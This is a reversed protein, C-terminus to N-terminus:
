PVDAGSRQRGGVLEPVCLSCKCPRPHQTSWAQPLVMEPGISAICGRDPGYRDAVAPGAMSPQVLKSRGLVSASSASGSWSRVRRSTTAPRGCWAALPPTATAAGAPVGL